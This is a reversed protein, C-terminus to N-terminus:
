YFLWATSVQYQVCSNMDSFLSVRVKRVLHWSQMKVPFTRDASRSTAQTIVINILM